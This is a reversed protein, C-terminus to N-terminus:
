CARGVRTVCAQRFSVNSQPVCYDVLVVNFPAFDRYLRLGEESNAATRVAYEENKLSTRLFNLLSADSEVLLASKPSADISRPPPLPPDPPKPPPLPSGPPEPCSLLHAM